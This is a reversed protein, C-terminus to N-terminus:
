GIMGRMQMPQLLIWVGCYLLLTGLILWPTRQQITTTLRVCIAVFALYGVALLFLEGSLLWTPAAPIAWLTDPESALGVDFLARKTVPLISSYSTFFHFLLHAAWMAVGLPVLSWAVQNKTHSIRKVLICLLSPIIFTASLIFIATMLKPSSAGVWRSAADILTHVPAIMGAANAFAGFVVVIMLATYDARDLSGISGRHQQKILDTGQFTSTM